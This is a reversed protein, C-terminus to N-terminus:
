PGGEPGDWRASAIPAAEPPPCPSRSARPPRCARFEAAGARMVPVVYPLTVQTLRRGQPTHADNSHTMAISAAHPEAPAREAESTTSCQYAPGSRASTCSKAEAQVSLAPPCYEM